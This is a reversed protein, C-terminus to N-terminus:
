VLLGQADIFQDVVSGSQRIAENVQRAQVSLGSVKPWRSLVGDVCYRGGLFGGM